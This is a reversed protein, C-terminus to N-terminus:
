RSSAPGGTIPSGDSPMRPHISESSESRPRDAGDVVGALLLQPGLGRGERLANRVAVIFKLENAVDRVTTVGAALYIAGWEVQEFHAHM